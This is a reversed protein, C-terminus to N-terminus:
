KQVAIQCIKKEYIKKDGGRFGPSPCIGSKTEVNGWGNIHRRRTQYRYPAHSDLSWTTAARTLRHKRVPFRPVSQRLINHQPTVTGLKTLAPPPPVKGHFNHVRSSLRM